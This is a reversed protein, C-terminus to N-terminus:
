LSIAGIKACYHKCSEAGLWNGLKLWKSEEMGEAMAYAVGANFYDGAGTSDLTRVRFAKERYFKGNLIGM